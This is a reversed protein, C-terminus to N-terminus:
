QHKKGKKKNKKNKDSDKSVPHNQSARKKKTEHTDSEETATSLKKKKKTEPTDSEDTTTVIGKKKQKTDPTDSEETATVGTPTYDPPFFWTKKSQSIGMRVYGQLLTVAAQAPTIVPVDYDPGINRLNSQVQQVVGLMGTCGLVICEAGNENIAKISFETLKEILLKENGLDSVPTDIQLVSVLQSEIGMEKALDWIMEVVSELVTIISWRRSLNTAYLAAGEFGGIVPINVLERCVEVAPDGFCDVFVGNYGQEVAEQTIRIIDGTCLFEDYRSEISNTGHTLNEYDFDFDPAQVPSIEEKTGENYQHTVVPIIIKIKYKEPKPTVEAPSLLNSAVRLTM